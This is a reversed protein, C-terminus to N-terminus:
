GPRHDMPDDKVQRDMMEATRDFPATRTISGRTPKQSSISRRGTGSGWEGASVTAHTTLERGERREDTLSHPYTEEGGQQERRRHRDDSPVTVGPDAHPLYLVVEGVSAQGRRVEGLRENEVLNDADGERRERPRHTRSPDPCTASGPVHSMFQWAARGLQIFLSSRRRSGRRTRVVAVPKKSPMKNVNNRAEVVSSNSTKKERRM